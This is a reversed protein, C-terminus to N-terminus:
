KRMRGTRTSRCKLGRPRPLYRFLPHLSFWTLRDDLDVRIQLLNGDKIRRFLETRMRTARSSDRSSIANLRPSISLAEVFKALEAPLHAM